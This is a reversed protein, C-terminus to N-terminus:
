SSPVTASAQDSYASETVGDSAVATGVYYYTAGAQVTDDTYTTGTVPSSNLKSYPGGSTTGRYVNYGIVGPTTSATWSLVVYHSGPPPTVTLSGGGCAAVLVLALLVAALRRKAQSPWPSARGSALKEVRTELHPYRLEKRRLGRL